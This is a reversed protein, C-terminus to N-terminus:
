DKGRGWASRAYPLSPSSILYSLFQEVHNRHRTPLISIPEIKLKDLELANSNGYRTPLIPIVVDGLQLEILFPPKWAEYTPDSNEKGPGIWNVMTM